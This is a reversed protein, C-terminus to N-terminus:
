CGMKYLTMKKRSSRRPRAGCEALTVDYASDRSTQCDIFPSLFFSATIIVKLFDM